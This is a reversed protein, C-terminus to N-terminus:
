STSTSLHIEMINDLKKIFHSPQSKMSKGLSNILSCLALAEVDLPTPCGGRTDPDITRVDYFGLLLGLLPFLVRNSLMNLVM